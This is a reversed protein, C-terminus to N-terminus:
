FIEEIDDDYRPEVLINNSDLKNILNFKSIENSYVNFTLFSMDYFADTLECKNDLKTEQMFMSSDKIFSYRKVMLKDLTNLMITDFSNGLIILSNLAKVSWNAYLLNNFLGKSCHPMYFFNLIDNDATEDFLSTQKMCKCNTSELKFAYINTLLKKDIENFVPDYLEVSNIKLASSSSSSVISDSDFSITKFEDIILLLLAFQYRSSFQDDISGLGYCIINIKRNKRYDSNNNNHQSHSNKKKENFYSKVLKSVVLQLKSWYFHQDCDKLKSKLVEIRTSLERAAIDANNNNDNDDKASSTMYGVNTTSNGKHNTSAMTPKKSKSKVLKFGDDDLGCTQKNSIHDTLESSNSLRESEEARM